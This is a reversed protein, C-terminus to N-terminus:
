EMGYTYTTKERYNKVKFYNVQFLGKSVTPALYDNSIHWYSEPPRTEGGSALKSNEVLTIGLLLQDRSTAPFFRMCRDWAAIPNKVPDSSSSVFNFLAISQSPLPFFLYLKAHGVFESRSRTFAHTMACRRVIIVRAPRRTPPPAAAALHSGSRRCPRVAFPPGAPVTRNQAAVQKCM